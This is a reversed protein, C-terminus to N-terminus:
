QHATAMNAGHQELWIKETNSQSAHEGDEEDELQHTDRVHRREGLRERGKERREEICSVLAGEDERVDIQQEAASDWDPQIRAQWSVDDLGLGRGRQPRSRGVRADQRPSAIAETTPTRKPRVRQGDLRLVYSPETAPTHEISQTRARSNPKPLASPGLTRAGEGIAHNSSALQVTSAHASSATVECISM